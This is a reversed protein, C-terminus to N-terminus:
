EASPADDVHIYGDIGAMRLMLRQALNFAPLAISSDVQQPNRVDYEAGAWRISASGTAVLNRYWDVQAGFALSIVFGGRVRRAGVPTAYVRGTRRGRHVMVAFIPNWRHGAFPMTLWSTWGALKWLIGGFRPSQRSTTTALM